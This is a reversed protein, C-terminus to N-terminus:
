SSLCEFRDSSRVFAFSLIIRLFKYTLQIFSETCYIGLDTNSIKGLRHRNASVTEFTQRIMVIVTVLSPLNSMVFLMLLSSQAVLPWNQNKSLM